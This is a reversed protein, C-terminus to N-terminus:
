ANLRVVFRCDPDGRRISSILDVSVPKGTVAGFVELAWGRSCNCYTPSLVAPGAAVLPCYCKTYRLRVVNGERRANEAGIHQGLAALLKDVDGAAAKELSPLANRRACARGCSEMLHRRSPEDLDSDMAALLASLWQQKFKEGADGTAAPANEAACACVPLTGAAALVNLFQKRDM